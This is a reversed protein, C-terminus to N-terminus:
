NQGPRWKELFAQLDEPTLSRAAEFEGNRQSFLLTGDGKLVALAPIGKKLPVQYREAMDLNKDFRGVDVHIVVFNKELFPQFDPHHFALDLVDCDYCWNAGFVVIVRKGQKAATALAEKLEYNADINAPYLNPDLRMPQKLRRIEGRRIEVIRWGAEQKQWIQGEPVYWTRPKGGGPAATLEAQFVVQETEKDGNVSQVQVDDLKLNAIGVEKRDKWFQLENDAGESEMVPGKVKVRPQISYMRELVTADGAVVAKRWQELPEFSSATDAPM